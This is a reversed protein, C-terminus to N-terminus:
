RHDQERGEDDGDVRRSRRAEHLDACPLEDQEGDDRADTEKLSGEMMQAHATREPLPSSHLGIMHTRPWKEISWRHWRHVRQRAADRASRLLAFCPLGTGPRKAPSGM